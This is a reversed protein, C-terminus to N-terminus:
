AGVGRRRVWQEAVLLMLALLLLWPAAARGSEIRPPLRRAALSRPASGAVMRVLESDAPRLDRTVGCPRTLARLLDRTRERLALDGVPTVPVAVERLCGSGIRRETAAVRGDAWWAVPEGLRPGVPRAFSAILVTGATAIGGITDTPAATTAPWHVLVRGASVAWASDAAALRSDRVLRLPAADRRAIGALSLTAHLPDAAAARLALAATRVTDAAAAVQRIDIGGPWTARVAGTAADFEERVLPSVLVIALSDAEDRRAHAERVAIVLAASLSGARQVDSTGLRLM